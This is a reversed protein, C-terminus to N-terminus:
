WIAVASNWTCELAWKTFKMRCFSKLQLSQRYFDGVKWSNGSPSTPIWGASYFISLCVSLVLVKVAYIISNNVVPQECMCMCVCVMDSVLVGHVHICLIWSLIDLGDRVCNPCTVKECVCKQYIILMMSVPTDLSDDALHLGFYDRETLELHKFVADLLVQGHDAKQLSPCLVHLPNWTIKLKWQWVSPPAFVTNKVSSGFVETSSRHRNQRSNREVTSKSSIYRSVWLFIQYNGMYTQHLRKNQRSFYDSLSFDSLDRFVYYDCHPRTHSVSLASLIVSELFPFSHAIM